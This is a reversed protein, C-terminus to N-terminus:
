KGKEAQGGGRKGKFIRDQIRGRIQGMDERLEALLGRLDEIIIYFAPVMLLIIFTAFLVGFGLSIAMPILFRAQLSTEFIMPMLGFFTTLSTLLIPRFRRIGAAAVAEKVAMGRNRMGNAAHVLVLSDNVVVGSLALLGMMSILSLSYGMIMHGAVAGIFGFPIASLVMVPQIYSNFPIAILVYMVMLAIAFGKFLSRMSDRGEREAGELSYHLGPYRDMLAPLEGATLSAIVKGGGTVKEEIDATVHITRRGDTRTISTYSSGRRVEAAASLPIEGGQPTRIILQEVDQESTREAQPLRVMVQVTDRGRQQRLAEAGWFTYRIQRGLELPTLGLSEAEPRISLDFQPKGAAFGDDIDVVGEYTQLAAALDKAARELVEMDRHSLQVDVPSGGRPGGATADFILSEMEPLRGARERWERAFGTGSIDRQNMPVLSVMVTLRYGNTIRTYIGKGISPGTAPSHDEIASLAAAELRRAASLTEEVPAGYPLEGNAVIWDSEIKPFMTISVRGGQVFGVAVILLAVAIACTIWRNRVVWGIAPGFIDQATYEVIGAFKRQFRAIAGIIGTKKPPGLHGLHAPLIYLSEYLSIFLVIIVVSPLIRFIKGMIGEVFFLPAFATATTLISFIVPVAVESAGDISAHLYSNGGRSGTKGNIGELARRHVYVNEGVVIADDVVMGLTIIFAFLSIMNISVDAAPLFLFSGLFSIPIGMTVWFALRPELFLGLVGLVLFLGIRANKLLLDIRDHFIESRDRRIAIGVGPPLSKELEVAYAKVAGAVGLPTEDGIRFVNVGVAPKGNFFSLTDVDEFSERVTAIEGLSVRAGTRTSIIPIDAFERAWDRRESTRLLIEGAETRIRGAPLEVATRRIQEAIGGLTLGYGRLASQPVEVAIEPPRIGELEVQTIAESRLLDERVTEGLERLTREGIDGYIVLSLVERRTSPVRVMPDEADEPFSAIRDVANKIDALLKNKDVGYFLEVNINGVGESATAVVQKVGDIGQVAEEVATLIGKEVEEPSAGPYPISIIILDTEFEPFIEQRTQTLLIVAGGVIFVLMMLNAAVPNSAMWVVSSFRKM